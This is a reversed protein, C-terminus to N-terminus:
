TIYETALFMVFKKWRWSPGVSLDRSGNNTFFKAKKCKYKIEQSKSCTTIVIICM